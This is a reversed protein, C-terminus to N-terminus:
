QQEEPLTMMWGFHDELRGTLSIPVAPSLRQFEIKMKADPFAMQVQHIPMHKRFDIGSLGSWKFVAEKAAWALTIQRIDNQFYSQEETTLFKQQLYSIKEQYTQVDIGIPVASIVAGVYPFSHTISFHANYASPLFPKGHEAVLVDEFPFKEDLLRLLYRTALFELRRHKWKGSAILGTREEFFVEEEQIEWLAMRFKPKEIHRFLPM